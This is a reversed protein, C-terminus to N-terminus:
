LLVYFRLVLGWNYWTMDTTGEYFPVFSEVDVDSHDVAVLHVVTGFWATVHLCLVLVVDLVVIRGDVLVLRAVNTGDTSGTIFVSVLPLITFVLVLALKQVSTELTVLLEVVLPLVLDVLANMRSLFRELTRDAADPHSPQVVQVRVRLLRVPHSPSLCLRHGLTRDINCRNICLCGTICFNAHRQYSHLRSGLNLETKIFLTLDLFIHYLM